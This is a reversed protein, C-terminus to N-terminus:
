GEIIKQLSDNLLMIFDDNVMIADSSSMSSDVLGSSNLLVPKGADSPGTSITIFDISEFGTSEEYTGDTNVHVFRKTM